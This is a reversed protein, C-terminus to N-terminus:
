QQAGVTYFTSPSGQNNYETVVWGASRASNLMRFEDMVGDTARDQLERNGLTIYSTNYQFVPTYPAGQAQAQGNIYMGHTTGNYTLVIFNWQNPQFSNADSNYQNAGIGYILAPNPYSNYTIIPHNTFSTPTDFLRLWTGSYDPNINVWFQVTFSATNFETDGPVSALDSVTNFTQGGAIKSALMPSPNTATYKIANNAYTTSDFLTAGSAEAAHWVGVYSADWV